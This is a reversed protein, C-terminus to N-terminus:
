PRMAAPNLYLLAQPAGNGFRRVGPLRTGQRPRMAQVDARFPYITRGNTDTRQEPDAALLRCLKGQVRRWEEVTDCGIHLLTHLSKGGSYTIAAVLQALPSKALLGLWFACQLPLSLEDFEIVIFPFRALCSQAILSKKGGTTESAAGTFPNPVILDGGTAM